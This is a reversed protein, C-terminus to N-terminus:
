KLVQTSREPVCFLSELVEKQLGFRDKDKKPSERFIRTTSGAGDSQDSDQYMMQEQQFFPEKVDALNVVDDYKELTLASLEILKEMSKQMDFGCCGLVEEIMTMDLQFGDGLMKFLFEEVDALMSDHKTTMNPPGKECWIKSVPFEKSDLKVPKTPECSNNPLSKTRIYEKGIVGSVTGMSVPRSKSTSVGTNREEHHSKPLVSDSAVELTTKDEGKFKVRSADIACGIGNMSCLINAAGNVDRKAECYASAIDELSFQSGFAGLLEELERVEADCLITSAIAQKKMYSKRVLWVLQFNFKVTWM